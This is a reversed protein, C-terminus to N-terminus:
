KAVKLRRRMSAASPQTSRAPAVSSVDIGPAPPAPHAPINAFVELAFAVDADTMYWRRGIKRARIRGSRIQKTLWREPAVLDAPMRQAIDALPHLTITM